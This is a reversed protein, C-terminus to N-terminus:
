RQPQQRQRQLQRAYEQQEAQAAIALQQLEPHDPFLAALKTLLAVSQDYNRAARAAQVKRAMISLVQQLIQAAEPDGQQSARRAWSLACDGPPEIYREAVLAQEAREHAEQYAPPVPAPSPPKPTPKQEKPPPPTPSTEGVSSPPVSTSSADATRQPAQSASPAETPANSPSAVEAPVPQATGSTASNAPSPRQINAQKSAARNHIVYGIGAGVLVLLALGAVLVLPGRKVQAPPHLPATEPPRSVVTPLPVDYSQRVAPSFTAAGPPTEPARSAAAPLPVHQPQDRVTEPPPSDAAPRPVHHPQATELPPTVARPVGESPSKGCQKCFKAGARVPAGCHPCPKEEVPSPPPVSVPPSPTPVRLTAAIAPPLPPPATIHPTSRQVLAPSTLPPPPSPTTPAPAAIPIQQQMEPAYEALASGCRGCFRKGPQVETGCKPCRRGPSITGVHPAVTARTPAGCKGCFKKGEGVEAHCNPCTM